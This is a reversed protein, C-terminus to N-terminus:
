GLRRQPNNPTIIGKIPESVFLLGGGERGGVRGGRVQGALPGYKDMLANIIEEDNDNNGAASSPLRKALPM